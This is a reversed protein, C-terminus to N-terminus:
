YDGINVLTPHSNEARSYALYVCSLKKNEPEYSSYSFSLPFAPGNHDDEVYEGSVFYKNDNNFAYYIHTWPKQLKKIKIQNLSPCYKSKDTHANVLPTALFTILTFLLFKKTM